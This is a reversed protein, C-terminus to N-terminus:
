FVLKEEAATLRLPGIWIMHRCTLTEKNTNCNPSRGCSIKIIDHAPGKDLLGKIQRQTGNQEVGGGKGLQHRTPYRSSHGRLGTDSKQAGSIM